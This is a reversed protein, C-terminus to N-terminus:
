MQQTIGEDQGQDWEREIRPCIEPNFSILIGDDALVAGKVTYPYGKSLCKTIKEAMEKDTPLNTHYRENIEEFYLYWNGTCTKESGTDIYHEAITQAYLERDFYPSLSHFGIERIEDDTMGIVETLTHHLEEGNESEGLWTVFRGVLDARRDREAVAKSASLEGYMDDVYRIIGHELAEQTDEALEYGVALCFCDLQRAYDEDTAMYIQCFHGSCIIEQDIDSDYHEICDDPCSTIEFGRYRM